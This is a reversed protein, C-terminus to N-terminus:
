NSHDVNFIMSCMTPPCWWVNGLYSYVRCAPPNELFCSERGMKRQEHRVVGTCCGQSASAFFSRNKSCSGPRAQKRKNRGAEVGFSTSTGRIQTHKRYFECLWACCRDRFVCCRVCFVEPVRAPSLSFLLLLLRLLVAAAAAAAPLLQLLLSLTIGTLQTWWIHATPILKVSCRPM